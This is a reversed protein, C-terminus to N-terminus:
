VIGRLGEGRPRIIGTPMSTPCDEFAPQGIDSPLNVLLILHFSLYPEKSM